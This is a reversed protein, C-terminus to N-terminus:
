KKIFRLVFTQDKDTIRLFYVGSAFSSVDIYDETFDKEIRIIRGSIDTISFMELAGRSHNIYLQSEAPNPYLYIKNDVSEIGTM